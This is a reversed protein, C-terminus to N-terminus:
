KLLEQSAKREAATQLTGDNKSHYGSHTPKLQCFHFERGDHWAFNCVTPTSPKEM